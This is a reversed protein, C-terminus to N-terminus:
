EFAKADALQDPTFHLPFTGVLSFKDKDDNTSRYSVVGIVQGKDNFVGAGSDGMGLTIDFMYRLTGEDRYRGTYHGIRFQDDFQEPNGFFYVEDGVAPEEQIIDVPDIFEIDSVYLLTHDYTDRVIKDIHVHKFADVNMTNTALECHSATLLVHKFIATSSCKQGSDLITQFELRHTAGWPRLYKHNIKVPPDTQGFSLVSLAVFLLIANLKRTM